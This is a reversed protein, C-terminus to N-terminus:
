KGAIQRRPVTLGPFMFLYATQSINCQCCSIVRTARIRFITGNYQPVKISDIVTIIIYWNLKHLVLVLTCHCVPVTQNELVIGSNTLSRLRPLDMLAICSYIGFNIWLLLYVCFILHYLPHHCFLCFLYVLLVRFMRALLNLVQCGKM